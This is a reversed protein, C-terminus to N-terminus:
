SFSRVQGLYLDPLQEMIPIIQEDTLGLMQTSRAGLADITASNLIGIGLSNAILDATAVIAVNQSDPISEDFDDWQIAHHYRIPNLLFEPLEWKQIIM